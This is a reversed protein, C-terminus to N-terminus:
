DKLKAVLPSEAALVGKEGLELGGIGFLQDVAVLRGQSGYRLDKEEDMSPQKQFACGIGEKSFMYAQQDEVQNNVLVPVGYIRGIMGSPINSSGYYDARVLEPILLMDKESGAGVVLVMDELRAENGLLFKRMELIDDNTIAAPVGANINLGAIADLEAIIQTDVYKGHARGARAAAEMRFEISSQVIDSHDENWSIYANFDLNITDVGETLVEPTGAVNFGRNAVTFSSMKPVKISKVGKGAFQSYDTCYPALNAAEILERQVLSIILDNKSSPFQTAM